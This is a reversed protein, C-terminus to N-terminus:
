IVGDNGIRKDSFVNDGSVSPLSVELVLAPGEVAMFSHPTGPRVRFVDGQRLIGATGGADMRLSGRVVFFTEDKMRHYHEPCRQGEFLFLFKGCYRNETDNVIWWETEGIRGFEGLGFHLPLPEVAPMTLGWEAIITEAERIAAEREAGQLEFSATWDAGTTTM